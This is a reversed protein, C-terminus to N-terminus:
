RRQVWQVVYNTMFRKQELYFVLQPQALEPIMLPVSETDIKFKTIELNFDGPQEFLPDLLDITTEAKSAIGYMRDLNKTDHDITIDYYFKNPEHSRKM